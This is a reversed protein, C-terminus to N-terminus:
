PTISFALADSLNTTSASLPDRMWWQIYVVAGPSLRPDHPLVCTQPNGPILCNFNMAFVGSCDMGSSNGGANIIHTGRATPANLCLVGDQFPNSGPNLSYCSIGNKNNLVNVASIEFPNPDSASASGAYGISPLCGLSNTKAVCYRQPTTIAVNLDYVVIADASSQHLAVMSMLGPNRADFYIDCGGAISQAALAAGEFGRGTPTMNTPDLETAQVFNNGGQPTNQSWVWLTNSQPDWAAGYILKGPNPFTNHITGALDFEHIPGGFDATFFHGNVPNRALARVVGLAAITYETELAIGGSVADYRYAYLKGGQEGSYILGGQEDAELDRNNFPGGSTTQPWSGSLQGQENFKYIRKLNSESGTVWFHGWAYEVGLLVENGSSTSLDFPGAVLSGGNGLLAPSSGDLIVSADCDTDGPLQAALSSVLLLSAFGFSTCRAFM